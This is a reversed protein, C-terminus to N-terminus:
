TAYKKVWSKATREYGDPDNKLRKALEPLMPDDSTSVILNMEGGGKGDERGGV